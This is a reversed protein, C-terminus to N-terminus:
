VFWMTDRMETKPPFPILAAVEVDRGTSSASKQQQEKKAKKAEIEKKTEKKGSSVPHVNLHARARDAALHAYYVAPFLSVPTTSRVYQFSHEFLFQQLAEPSWKAEDQIVQYHIPRATGKIAVHSCLYFDWEYPHTCGTEVLTGPLPNGNRDGSAHEPFFRIHHRKGAIVTTFVAKSKPDKDRLVAKMDIVENELVQLYQGESVGDRIYLVQEPGRNGGVNAMWRKVMDGFHDRINSTTVMEVRSGNTNVQAMYRMYARDASVTIACISAADGSAAGPAPHSVDIGVVMLPQGSALPKILKSLIGKAFCTAGGLKANVKMCVNSIYQPSGTAVHRSQLVQSPVGFRCDCSKKLRRYVETNKDTVIFFLIQPRKKLLNGTGNFIDAVIEGGRNIQVKMINPRGKLVTNTSINGGHGRYIEMFRDFFADVSERRTPVGRGYDIICVGWSELVQRNREVFRM